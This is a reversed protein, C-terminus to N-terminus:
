TAVKRRIPHCSQWRIPHCCDGSYAGPGKIAIFAPALRVQMNLERRARENPEQLDTIRQHVQQRTRKLLSTYAADQILAHKFLYRSRPPRGRQYLLEAEVLQALGAQLTADDLPVLAQLLDYTFERGVVSGFQAIERAEPLRDLRAMLSDQLTTPITVTSLPGTLVVQDSAEQLLDSELLMKTLEEVFLPVGNTKDVIHEIMEVPLTKGGALHVILAEVQSRELRNLTIPTMHSRMPWPPTFEPRFTLVHLLPVTPAQELLLGLLELTSPDAWHLDEWMACVPQQESMEMFWAVLTDLTQQRQQQPTLTLPTYRGEPIPLALLDVFLPVVEELARSYGCLGRELKDLRAAPTDGPQFQLMRQVHEIVPYLASNTHYPSCCITM